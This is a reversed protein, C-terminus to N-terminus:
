ADRLRGFTRRLYQEHREFANRLLRQRGAYPVTRDIVQVEDWESLRSEILDIDLRHDNADLGGIELKEVSRPNRQRLSNLTEWLRKAHRFAFGGEEHGMTASITIKPAELYDILELAQSVGPNRERAADAAAPAAIRMELKRVKVISTLKEMADRDLVPHFLIPGSTGSKQFFYEALSSTGVGYFNRQLVLIQSQPDYLFATEEGLGEDESLDLSEVEGSLSAKPPVDEMRIKVMDGEICGPRPWRGHTQLRVPYSGITVNRDEPALRSVAEVMAEFAPGAVEVQYFDIRMRKPKDPV